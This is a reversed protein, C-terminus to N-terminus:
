ISAARDNGVLVADLRVPRGAAKIRVVLDERVRASLIKGDVIAASM